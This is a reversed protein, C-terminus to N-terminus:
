GRRRTVEAEYHEIEEIWSEGSPVGM